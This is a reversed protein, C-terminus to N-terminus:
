SSGNEEKDLGLKETTDRKIEEANARDDQLDAYARQFLADWEQAIREWTYNQIWLRANDAIKKAKEPNDYIWILKKVADEVNGLPRETHNDQPGLFVWESKNSGALYAVGRAEESIETNKLDFLEPTTTHFPALNITGAGMAEVYTLGFGEGLNSSLVVDSANYIKNLTEKKVGSHPSFNSPTAFDKGLELGLTSAYDNLNGWVDDIAAHIYLFSDPRRKKFEAFMKMARPIDKRM